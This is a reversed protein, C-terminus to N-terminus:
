TVLLRLLCETRQLATQTAVAPPCKLSNTPHVTNQSQHKGEALLKEKRPGWLRPPTEPMEAQLLRGFTKKYGRYSRCRSQVKSWLEEVSRAPMGDLCQLKLFASSRYKCTSFTYLATLLTDPALDIDALITGTFFDFLRSCRGCRYQLDGKGPASIAKSNCYVCVIGNPWRIAELARLALSEDNFIHKRMELTEKPAICFRIMGIGFSRDTRFATQFEAHRARRYYTPITEPALDIPQQHTQPSRVGAM